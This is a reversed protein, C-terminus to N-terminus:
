KVIIKQTFTDNLTRLRLWYLGPPLNATEVTTTNSSTSIEQALVQKGDPSILTLMGEKKGTEVFFSGHSPNPYVKWDGAGHEQMEVSRVPSFEFKDDFDM